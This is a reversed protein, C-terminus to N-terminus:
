NRVVRSYKFYLKAVSSYEDSWAEIRNIEEHLLAYKGEVDAEMKQYDDQMKEIRKKIMSPFVKLQVEDTNAKSNTEDYELECMLIIGSVYINKFDRHGQCQSVILLLTM